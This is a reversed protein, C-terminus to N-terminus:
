LPAPIKTGFAVMRMLNRWRRTDAPTGARLSAEVLAPVIETHYHRLYAEENENLPTPSNLLDQYKEVVHKHVRRLAQEETSGFTYIGLEPVCASFGEPREDLLETTFLFRGDVTVPIVKSKKPM